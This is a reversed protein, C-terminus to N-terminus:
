SSFLNNIKCVFLQFFFFPSIKRVSIQSTHQSNLYFSFVYFRLFYQKPLVSCAEDEDLVWGRERERERETKIRIEKNSKTPDREQVRLESM